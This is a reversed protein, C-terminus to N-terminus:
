FRAIRIATIWWGDYYGPTNENAARNNMRCDGRRQCVWPGNGNNGRRDFRFRIIINEGIYGTLNNQMVRWPRNFDSPEINWSGEYETPAFTNGNIVQLGNIFVSGRLISDNREWTFGGDKSVELVARSSGEIRYKTQYEMLVYRDSPIGQLNIVTNMVLSTNGFPVPMNDPTIGGQKPSDAFSFRGDTVTLMIVSDGTGEFYQLVIRYRKGAQFDFTGMDNTAPHNTWNNIVWNPNPIPNNSNDLEMIKLRVGDDSLTSFSRPGPAFGTSADVVPTDLTMEGLFQNNVWGPVPSGGGNNYQINTVTATRDPAPRSPNDLFIEAGKAYRNGGNAGAAQGIAECSPNSVSPNNGSGGCSWWRVNWLGLSIPGGGTGLYFNPDLGWKGEATWNRLSSSRDDFPRENIVVVEGPATNGYRFTVNDLYWGDSNANEDLADYVFRVRIRKGPINQSANNPNVLVAAYRSLDVRVQSWGNSRTRSRSNTSGSEWIVEWASWGRLQEYCQNVGRSLCRSNMDSDNVTALETSVEVRLFDRLGTLYRTWFRIQPKDTIYTSRLDLISALEMVSYSDNKTWTETPLINIDGCCGDENQFPVTWDWEPVSPTRNGQDGTPSDHFSMVGTRSQWDVVSWDGGTHWSEWWPRGPIPADPDQVLSTGNGTGAGTLNFQSDRNADTPWFKYVFEEYESIEIDDIWLGEGNNTGDARLMFRFVVDDNRPTASNPAGITNIVPRLDVEIREWSLQTGTRDNRNRAGMGHEYLWLNRWSTDPEDVRKWQVWFQDVSGLDRRHYFSMVPRQAPQGHTNQLNEGQRGVILKNPTNNYLDIPWKLLMWTQTNNEYRGGPNSMYSTRKYGSAASPEDINPRGVLDSQAWLGTFRWLPNNFQQANDVFPYDTWKPDEERGLRIQDIWWGDRRQANKTVIMAFRIRIRQPNGPLGTLSVLKEQFNPVRANGNASFDRILGDSFRTWTPTTDTFPDTTYQVELGTNGGLDYAQWFVLAPTGSNGQSDEAPVNVLDVWGNFELSHVRHDAINTSNGAGPSDIFRRYDTYDAENQLATGDTADNAGVSEHWSMGSPGYKMNSVLGWGSIVNENSRGGTTIFDNKQSAQDLNWERNLTFTNEVGRRVEIDDIYWKRQDTASVGPTQLAFRFALLTEGGGAFTFYDSLNIVNRTWNYNATNRQRVDVKVWTMNDRDPVPRTMNGGVPVYQAVELWGETGNDFDWVDWYILQPNPIDNHRIRVAGRWELYCRMNTPQNGGVYEEWMYSETNSDNVAQNGGPRGWGCMASGDQPAGVNNVLTDDPNASGGVVKVVLKGDCCGNYYEVTISHTDQPNAADNAPLSVSGIYNTASQGRWSDTGGDSRTLTVPNGNVFIRIGDDTEVLFTITQAENLRITRRLRMSFNEGSALGVAPPEGPKFTYNIDPVGNATYVPDGTLNTNNFFAVTWPTGGLAINYDARWWAANDISDYIPADVIRDVQTPTLTPTATPVTATPPLVDTPTPSPGDTPVQTPAARTNTPIGQQRQPNFNANATVTAWFEDKDPIDGVPTTRLADSIAREFVGALSPTTAALALGFGVAILVLLLAYEVLAQGRETSHHSIQSPTKM